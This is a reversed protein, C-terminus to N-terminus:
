APSVAVKWDCPKNGLYELFYDGGALVPSILRGSMEGEPKVDFVNTSVIVHGRALPDPGQVMLQLGFNCGFWPERDSVVYDISLPGNPVRFPVSAGNSAGADVFIPQANCAVSMSLGLM